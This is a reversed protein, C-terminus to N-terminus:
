QQKDPMPLSLVVCRGGVWIMKTGAVGAEIDPHYVLLKGAGSATSNWRKTSTDYMDVTGNRSCTLSVHLVNLLFFFVCEGGACVITTSLAACAVLRPVSLTGFGPTTTNTLINYVDITAVAVDSSCSRDMRLGNNFRYNFTGYQGGVFFVECGAAVAALNYRPVSLTM